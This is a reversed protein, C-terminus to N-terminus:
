RRTAEWGREGERYKPVKVKLWKLTRGGVYVSAPDKAVLGEYGRALVEAWPRTSGLRRRDRGEAEEPRGRDPVYARLLRRGQQVNAWQRHDDARGRREEARGRDRRGRHAM